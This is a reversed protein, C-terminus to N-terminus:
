QLLSDPPPLQVAQEAEVHVGPLLDLRERTPTDARGLVIGLQDLVSTVALGCEELAPLTTSLPRGTITVVVAQREPREPAHPTRRHLPTSGSM